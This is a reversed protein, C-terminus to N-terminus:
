ALALQNVDIYFDSEGLINKTTGPIIIVNAKRLCTINTGQVVQKEWPRNNFPRMRPCSEFYALISKVDPNIIFIDKEDGGVWKIINDNFHMDVHNFSYGIVVIRTSKDLVELAKYWTEITDSAIIPKIEFPPIMSPIISHNWDPHLLPLVDSKLVELMPTTTISNGDAFSPLTIEERTGCDIYNVASGHFHLVDGKKGMFRDALTTYNLTIASCEKFKTYICHNELNKLMFQQETQVFFAWMSWSVYLYRRIDTQNGNYFGLFLELLISDFRVMTKFLQHLPKNDPHELYVHLLARFTKLLFANVTTEPCVTVIKKLDTDDLLKLLDPRSEIRDNERAKKPCDRIEGCLALILDCFPKEAAIPSLAKIRRVINDIQIYDPKRVFKFAVEDMISSYCYHKLGLAKKLLRDTQIGTEDHELFRNIATVLHNTMPFIGSDAGAGFVVTMKDDHM